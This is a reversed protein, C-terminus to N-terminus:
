LMQEWSCASCVMWYLGDKDRDLWVYRGCMPCNRRRDRHLDAWETIAFLSPHRERLTPEASM